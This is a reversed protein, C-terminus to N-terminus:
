TAAVVALEDDRCLAVGVNELEHVGYSQPLRRSKLCTLPNFCNEVPCNLMNWPKSANAKRGLHRFNFRKQLQLAETVASFPADSIKMKKKRHIYTIHSVYEM